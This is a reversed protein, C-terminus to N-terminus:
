GKQRGSGLFILPVIGLLLPLLAWAAMPLGLFGSLGTLLSEDPVVIFPALSRIPLGPVQALAYIAGDYILWVALSITFADSLWLGPIKSKILLFLLALALGIAIALSVPYVQGTRICLFLHHVMEALACFGAIYTLSRVRGLLLLTVLVLSMLLYLLISQWPAPLGNQIVLYGGLERIMGAFYSFPSAPLTGWICFLIAFVIWARSQSKM